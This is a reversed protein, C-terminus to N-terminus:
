NDTQPVVDVKNNNSTDVPAKSTPGIFKEVVMQIIAPIMWDKVPFQSEDTYCVESDCNDFVAVDEPNEFVGQVNIWELELDSDEPMMLYLYGGNHIQYAKILNKTYRGYSEFPVREYPILNYPRSTKDIPGVRTILSRHHLEVTSPIPLKTRLFYCGIAEECCESKDVPEVEICGLDQIISSDITRSKNLENRILLARTNLVHFKVLEPSIVDGSGRKPRVQNIVAYVVEKLTAM